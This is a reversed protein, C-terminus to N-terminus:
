RKSRSKRRNQKGRSGTTKRRRTIPRSKPPPLYDTTAGDDDSGDSVLSLLTSGTVPNAEVLKVTVQAGLQYTRGWRRGVLSQSQDDLDYYDDPLTSIPVLGDGGSENLRVFLGFKTVSTIRGKLLQGIQDALFAATYRDGADREATAARRETMTLHDGIAELQTLEADGAGGEGLRLARILARHVVLDAYRRIPSTFHAYAALALGFHGINDQQYVAQSQARLVMESVTESEPKGAARALIQTFMRPQVVQGLSLSYGMPQLFDKLALLRSRDPADHVRFLSGIGRDQLARAAAVNAAIMFEEILRHSDLRERKRIATVHGRDDFVYHREAVDFDLTGRGERAKLLCRYAGYLPDLVIDKLPKTVDDANGDAAQQVQEYTLRAASRMLGRVFRHRRVQGDRDITLHVAICARDADPVLSCLGNSLAEPLMPVVRDPFYCSNGRKQAERDLPSDPTVYAAVDAIAVMLHWGDKNAPDPDPEAWVADDFDRADAGDITVFHVQRLDVRDPLTPPKAADAQHLAAEPFETPIGAAAIAILSIISPDDAHGLVADVTASRPGMRDSPLLTVSVIDGDRAGNRGSRAVPVERDKRKDAPTVSGGGDGGASFTGVIRVASQRDLKRIIKAEYRDSSLRTLKALIRDGSTVGGATKRDEVVRISPTKRDPDQRAPVALIGGDDSIRAVTLIAVSPLSDPPALRRGAQKEIVGDQALDRLLAKLRPRDDGSIRFARAIERKGVPQDSTEIFEAVQDKTPFPAKKAAL